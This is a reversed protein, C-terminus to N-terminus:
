RCSCVDCLGGVLETGHMPESGCGRCHREGSEEPFYWISTAYKRLRRSEDSAWESQPGIGALELVQDACWFIFDVTDNHEAFSTNMCRGEGPEHDKHVGFRCAGYSESAHGDDGRV